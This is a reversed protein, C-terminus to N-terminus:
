PPAEGAGPGPEPQPGPPPEAAPTPTAAEKAARRRERLVFLRWAVLGVLAGLAIGVPISGLVWDLLLGGADEVAHEKSLPAFSGTRIRHSLQV